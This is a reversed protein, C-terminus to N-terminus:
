APPKLQFEAVPVGGILHEQIIRELVEPTCSHYWTPGPWVVAVPGLACVRLCGVKNRLVGTHGGLGLEGLRKKLFLWAEQGKARDCCKPEEPDACLFIQWRTDFGGLRALTREALELEAPDIPDSLAKARRAWSEPM